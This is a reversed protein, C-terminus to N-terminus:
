DNTRKGKQFPMKTVLRDGFMEKFDIKTPTGKPILYYEQELEKLKIHLWKGYVFIGTRYGLIFVIVFAAILYWIM